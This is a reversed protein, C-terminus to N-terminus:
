EDANASPRKPHGEDGMGSGRVQEVREKGAWRRALKRSVEFVEQLEQFSSREDVREPHAHRVMKRVLGIAEPRKPDRELPEPNCRRDDLRGGEDNSTPPRPPGTAQNKM